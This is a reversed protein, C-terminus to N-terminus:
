RRRTKDVATVTKDYESKYRRYAKDSRLNKLAKKASRLCRKADAGKGKVAMDKACDQLTKLLGIQIEADSKFGKLNDDIVKWLSYDRTKRMKGYLQKAGELLKKRLQVKDGEGSSLLKAHLRMSIKYQKKKHAATAEDLLAGGLASAYGAGPALEGAKTLDLRYGDFDNAGKKALGRLYFALAFTPETQIAEGFRQAAESYRKKALAEGGQAVLEFAAKARRAGKTLGEVDRARFSALMSDVEGVLKKSDSDSLPAVGTLIVVQNGTSAAYGRFGLLKRGGKRFGNFSFRVVDSGNLSTPEVVVKSTEGRGKIQERITREADRAVLVEINVSARGDANQLSVPRREDFPRVVKTWEPLTAIAFGRTLDAYLSDEIVLAPLFSFSAFVADRDAALAGEDDKSVLYTLAYELGLRQFRMEYLIKDTAAKEVGYLRVTANELVYVPNEHLTGLKIRSGTQRAFMRKLDKRIRDGVEREDGRGFTFAKEIPFVRVMLTADRTTHRLQALVAPMTAPVVKWDEVPELEFRALWNAGPRDIEAAGVHPGEDESPEIAAIKSMDYTVEGYPRKVWVKQGRIEYTVEEFVRGDRMRITGKQPSAFATGGLLGLTLAFVLLTRPM